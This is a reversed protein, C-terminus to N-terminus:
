SFRRSNLYGKSAFTKQKKFLFVAFKRLEISPAIGRPSLLVVVTNLLKSYRDADQIGEFLGILFEGTGGFTQKTKLILKYYYFFTLSLLTKGELKARGKARLHIIRLLPFFTMTAKLIYNNEHGDNGNAVTHFIFLM